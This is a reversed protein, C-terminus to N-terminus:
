RHHISNVPNTPTTSANKKKKFLGVLCFFEQAGRSVRYEPSETEAVHKSSVSPEPDSRASDNEYRPMAHADLHQPKHEQAPCSQFYALAVQPM